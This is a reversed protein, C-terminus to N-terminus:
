PSIALCNPLQATGKLTVLDYNQTHDPSKKLHSIYWRRETRSGLFELQGKLPYPKQSSLRNKKELISFQLM